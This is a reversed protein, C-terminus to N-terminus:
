PWITIERRSHPPLNGSRCQGGAALRIIGIAPELVTTRYRRKDVFDIDTASDCTQQVTTDLIKSQAM